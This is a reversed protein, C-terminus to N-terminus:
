PRIKKKRLSPAPSLSSAFIIVIVLVIPILTTQSTIFGSVAAPSINAQKNGIVVFNNEAVPQKISKPNTKPLSKAILQSSLGDNIATLAANLIASYQLSLISLNKMVTYVEIKQPQLNNVGTEFGKPIVMAIQENKNKASAVLDESTGSLSINPNFNTKKIIEIVSQSTPTNDLDLIEIAQPAKIKSIQSGIVKGIFVFILVVIVLPVLMQPTILEQVEKKVLVFFKRM